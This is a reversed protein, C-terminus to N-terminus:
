EDEVLYLIEEVLQILIKEIYDPRTGLEVMLDVYDDIMNDIYEKRDEEDDYEEDCGLFFFGDDDDEDDCFGCEECDMMYDEIDCEDINCEDIIEIDLDEFDIGDEYLDISGNLIIRM